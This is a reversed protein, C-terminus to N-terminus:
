GASRRSRSSGPRPAPSSRAGAASRARRGASSRSAAATLAAATLFFGFMLLAMPTLTDYGLVGTLPTVLSGALFLLGGFLASATGGSRRGAQQALVQAGPIALGMGGTVCSLLVWPAALAPIGTLAVVVLGGAGFVALGLGCARLRAAGARVVLSRFVVSTTVMALANVTFVEAYRSQDIGYVAELTFSSGGIYTFFGMTAFCQIAVHRMYSWDTSLDKIRGVNAHLSGGQRREPPLTDPLSFAAVIMVAGGVALGAFVYRWSGFGLIVSGLPPALVPALLTISALTGYRRAAEDGESTDSVMARGAAVGGGAAFGELLRLGVLLPGDSVLACLASSVCFGLAGLLLVPRRGTGDSLPGIALQGLAAGIIFATLTLQAVAASTGLSHQLAPLGPLYADTAFPGIGTLLVLAALPPANRRM